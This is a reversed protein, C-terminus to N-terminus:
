IRSSGPIIRGSQQELARVRAVQDAVVARLESTLRVEGRGNKTEGPDLRLTGAELDLHRLERTLIEAKRWGFTFGVLAAAALEVPLRHAISDFQQRSVFGSRPDAEKLKEIKPARDIKRHSVALNLM